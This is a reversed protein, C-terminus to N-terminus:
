HHATAQAAYGACALNHAEFSVTVRQLISANIMSMAAINQLQDDCDMGLIHHGSILMSLICAAAFTDAKLMHTVGHVSQSLADEPPAFTTTSIHGILGLKLVIDEGKRTCFINGPAIGRHWRGANHVMQLGTLLQLCLSVRTQLPMSGIVTPLMEELTGVTPELSLECSDGLFKSGTIKIVNSHDTIQSHDRLLQM